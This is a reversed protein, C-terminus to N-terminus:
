RQGYCEGLKRSLCVIEETMEPESPIMEFHKCYRQFERYKNHEPYYEIYDHDKHLDNCVLYKYPCSNPCSESIVPTVWSEKSNLSGTYFEGYVRCEGGKALCVVKEGNIEIFHKRTKDPNTLFGAKPCSLVTWALLGAEKDM